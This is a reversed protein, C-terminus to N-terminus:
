NNLALRDIDLAVPRYKEEVRGIEAAANRAAPSMDQAHAVMANFKALNEQVRKESDIVAKKEIEIDAPTTVLVLNRVAMARDDVAARISAAATARADIGNVYDRFRNNTDSLAMLAIGSIVFVIIALMGFSATLKTKVSLNKFSM